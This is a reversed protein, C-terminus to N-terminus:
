RYLYKKAIYKHLIFLEYLINKHFSLGYRTADRGYAKM